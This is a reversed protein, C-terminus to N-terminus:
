AESGEPAVRGLMDGIECLKRNISRCVIAAVYRADGGLDDNDLIDEIGALQSAYDNLEIQIQRFNVESLSSVAM